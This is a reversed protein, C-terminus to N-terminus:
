EHAAEKQLKKVEDVLQAFSVFERRLWTPQPAEAPAQVEPQAPPQQALAKGEREWWKKAKEYEQKPAKSMKALEAQSRERFTGDPNLYEDKLKGPAQLYKPLSLAAPSPTAAPHALMEEIRIQFFGNEVAERAAGYGSTRKASFGCTLMMEKVAEAVLQLDAIAQQRIEAEDKGILDFPVYLLSFTGKAGAPVCEFLIPNTGVKRARDHPNVIELATQTFFTPYFYLRGARGSEQGRIEGFLRQMQEDDQKDHGMQWLASYLNGKWATSRVMPLRFVKDRMIPNDIIYFPNDDKSIYPSDLTFTFQLFWSAFPLSSFDVKPRAIIEWVEGDLQPLTVKASKKSWSSRLIDADNEKGDVILRHYRVTYENNTQVDGDPKDLEVFYDFSM